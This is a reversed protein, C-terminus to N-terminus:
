LVKFMGWLLAGAEYRLAELNQFQQITFFKEKFCFELLYETEALSGLAINLFHKTEKKSQRSVGEVISTPVSLAARRLQSKLGYMEEKPFFKTELYIARALQDIKKWAILKQYFKERKM